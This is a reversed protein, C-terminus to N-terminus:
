EEREGLADDALRRRLKPWVIEDWAREAAHVGVQTLITVIVTITVPDAGQTETVRVSAIADIQDEALIAAVSREVEAASASGRAFRLPTELM